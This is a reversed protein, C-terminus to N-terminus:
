EIIEKKWATPFPPLLKNSAKSRLPMKSIGTMNTRKKQPNGPSIEMNPMTPAVGMASKTQKKIAKIRKKLKKFCCAAINSSM